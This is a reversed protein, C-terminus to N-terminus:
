RLMTFNLMKKESSIYFRSQFSTVYSIARQSEIKILTKIGVWKDLLDPTLVDEAKVTQYKRIEYRGHGYEWSESFETSSKWTFDDCVQEHLSGQNQKVALLYNAHADLIKHGIETQCGIADISVTSGKLDM